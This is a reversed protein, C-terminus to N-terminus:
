EYKCEHKEDPNFNCFYCGANLGCTKCLYKFQISDCCANYVGKDMITYFKEGLQKTM